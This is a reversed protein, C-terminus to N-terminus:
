CPVLEAALAKALETLNLTTTVSYNDRWETLEATHDGTCCDLEWGEARFYAELASEIKRELPATM